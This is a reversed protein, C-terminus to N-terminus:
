WNKAQQCARVGPDALLKALEKRPEIPPPVDDAEALEALVGDGLLAGEPAFVNAVPAAEDPEEVPPEPEAPEIGAYADLSAEIAAPFAEGMFEADLAHLRERAVSLGKRRVGPKVSADLARQYARRAKDCPKRAAELILARFILAQDGALSEPPPVAQITASMDEYVRGLEQLALASVKGGERARGELHAVLPQLATVKGKLGTALIALPSRREGSGQLGLAFYAELADELPPPDDAVAPTALLVLALVLARNM